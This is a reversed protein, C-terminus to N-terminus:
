ACPTLTTLDDSIVDVGGLMTLQKPKVETLFAIAEASWCQGNALLVPGGRVGALPGAALGDPFNVGTAVFVETPTAKEAAARAIAVSTSYRDDGALRRTTLGLAAADTAVAASVVDVGGLLLVTSPKLRTLEDKDAQTLGSGPVTLLVPGLLNKYLSGSSLADPYNDGTAILVPRGWAAPFAKSTLLGTAYRDAGANRTVAGSTYGQLATAVADSIVDSGGQIVIRAPKLRALETAVASPIAGPEVLLLPGHAYSAAAGGALADPFNEGTAVYVVPVGATPFAANSVAVATEYRDNGALRRTTSAVLKPPTIPTPAVILDAANARITPLQAYLNGGPCATGKWDLHASLAPVDATLSTDTPNVYHVSGQPDLGHRDAVKALLTTLSGVAATPVATSGTCTPDGDQFCGMLAIGLNAGNMSMVHGGTVLYDDSARHAFDSGDGGGTLCSKSTHGSYRGEYVVGYGDILYNYAVDNWGNTNIHYSMIARLTASYDQSLSNSGATHHITVVQVEQFEPSVGKAWGTTSENAGWDARSRCNSAANAQTLGSAPVAEVPGDTTNIAAARWNHAGAPLNRVQYSTAHDVSILSGTFQGKAQAGDQELRQWPTWTGAVLFRAEGYPSAGNTDVAGDPTDLDAVLGFFDIANGPTVPGSGLPRTDNLTHHRGSANAFPPAVVMGVTLAACALTVAFLRAVARRVRLMTGGMAFPSRPLDVETV